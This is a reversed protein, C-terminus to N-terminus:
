RQGTAPHTQLPNTANAVAFQSRAVDEMRRLPGPFQRLLQTPDFTMDHTDMYAGTAIQRSFAPNIPWMLLRMAQMAPLPIRRKKVVHETVREILAVIQELSLNEPGGVEITLGHAQPDLLGILAFRAVDDVSVFNIPNIGRGFLLAQRRMLMPKAIITLWLEMFATPRIITHSLGSTKLAQETAYKCRFLDIPHDARAGHISMMVVHNVGAAHAAAILQRGGREDVTQPTNDGQSDFAHAANLVADIGQCARALSAEDRLDGEVVEAGSQTLDALKGVTRSMARVAHGQALLRRAVLGGLRGSAGVILIMDREKQNM